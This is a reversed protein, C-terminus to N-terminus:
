RNISVVKNLEYIRTNGPLEHLYLNIIQM